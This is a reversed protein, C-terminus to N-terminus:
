VDVASWAGQCNHVLFKQFGSPLMYKTNKNSGYGMSPMLVQGKFRKRVRSDTGRPKWWNQKIKTQQHQIFKKSRKKVTKPKVLPRIAAVTSTPSRQWRWLCCQHLVPSSVKNGSILNDNWKVLWKFIDFHSRSSPTQRLHTEPSPPLLPSGASLTCKLAAPPFFRKRSTGETWGM